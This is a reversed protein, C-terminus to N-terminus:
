EIRFVKKTTGDSYIYILLTNPKESTERGAADIIKILEKSHLQIENIGVSWPCSIKELSVDDILFYAAPECCPDVEMSNTNLDDNFNGIIMYSEGGSATYDGEFLIWNTTDTLMGGNYSVHPPVDIPYWNNIGEIITDSFHVSITDTTYRSYNGLNIYASFHYCSDMELSSSLEVELYERFNDYFATDGWLVLGAYGAGSHATQYGIMNNPVGVWLTACVNYYDPTGTQTGPYISPNFWYSASDFQAYQSPCGDYQEFDGNPVLNQAHGQFLVLLLLINLTIKM